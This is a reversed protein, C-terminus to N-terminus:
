TKIKLLSNEQTLFVDYGSFSSIGRFTFVGVLLVGVSLHSLYNYKGRSFSFGCIYGTFVSPGTV